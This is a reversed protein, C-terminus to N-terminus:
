RVTVYLQYSTGGRTSGVVIKYDGTVPLSGSWQRADAGEEAGPLAEKGESGPYIQFVANDDSSTIKVFMKQDAWASLSYVVLEGRATAGKILTAKNGPKFRIKRTNVQPNGGPKEPTVEPNGATLRSKNCTKYIGRVPTTTACLIGGWQYGIQGNALQIRFWPFGNMIEGSRELITVPDGEKLSSIQPADISPGRRVRGGWSGADVPFDEAAFADFLTLISILVALLATRTYTITM